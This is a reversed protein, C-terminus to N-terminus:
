EDNSDEFDPESGVDPVTQDIGFLSRYSEWKNVLVDEGKVIYRFFFNISNYRRVDKVIVSSCGTETMIDPRSLRKLGCLVMYCPIINNLSTFFRRCWNQTYQKCHVAEFRSILKDLVKYM